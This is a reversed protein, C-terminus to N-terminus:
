LWQHDPMLVTSQLQVFIAALLVTTCYRVYICTPRCHTSALRVLKFTIRSQVLLWYGTIETFFMPQPIFCELSSLLAHAVPDQARQLKEVNTFPLKCNAYDVRSHSLIATVARLLDNTIHLAVLSKTFGRLIILLEVSASL